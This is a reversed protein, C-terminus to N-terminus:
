SAARISPAFAPCCSHNMVIGSSRGVVNKRATVWTTAEKWTNSM